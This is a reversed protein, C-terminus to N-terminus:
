GILGTVGKYSFWAGFIVSVTIVIVRNHRELWTEAAKLPRAARHPTVAYAVIPLVVLTQTALVYILYLGTSAAGGPEAEGIVGIASLTFVWQAQRRGDRPARGRRRGQGGIASMWKPPPADPDEEKQWKKVATILLLIGVILLLTSVGLRQGDESSAALATGFVLGFFVGQALRVAVNGGVFAIAKVLGGQGQLMLLVAIPYFPVATAGVILLLLDAM